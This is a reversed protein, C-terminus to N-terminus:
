FLELVNNRRELSRTFYSVISFNATNNNNTITSHKQATHSCRNLKIHSIYKNYVININDLSREERFLSLSDM